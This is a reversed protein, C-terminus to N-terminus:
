GLFRMLLIQCELYQPIYITIFSKQPHLLGSKLLLSAETILCLLVSLKPEPSYQELNLKTKLAASLRGM